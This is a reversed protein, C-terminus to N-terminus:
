RKERKRRREERTSEESHMLWHTVNVKRTRTRRSPAADPFSSVRRSNRPISSRNRTVFNEDPTEPTEPELNSPSTSTHKHTIRISFACHDARDGSGVPFIECSPRTNICEGANRSM